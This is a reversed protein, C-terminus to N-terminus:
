ATKCVDSGEHAQSLEILETKIYKYSKPFRKASHEATEISKFNGFASYNGKGSQFINVYFYVKM